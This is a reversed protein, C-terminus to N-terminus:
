ANIWEDRKALNGSYWIMNLFFQYGICSHLEAVEHNSRTPNDKYDTKLKAWSQHSTEETVKNWLKQMFNPKYIPQSVPVNTLAEDLTKFEKESFYRILNSHFSLVETKKQIKQDGVLLLCDKEWIDEVIANGADVLELHSPEFGNMIEYQNLLPLNKQLKGYRFLVLLYDEAREAFSYGFMSITGNKVGLAKWLVTDLLYDRCLVPRHLAYVQDGTVSAHVFHM